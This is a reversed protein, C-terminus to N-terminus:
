QQTHINCIGATELHRWPPGNTADSPDTPFASQATVHGVCKGPKTRCGGAGFRDTCLY